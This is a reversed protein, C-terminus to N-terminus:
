NDILNEKDYSEENSDSQSFILQVILVLAFQCPDFHTKDLKELTIINLDAASKGKEKTDCIVKYLISIIKICAKSAQSNGYFLFMTIFEYSYEQDYPYFVFAVLLMRAKFFFDKPVKGKYLEKILLAESEFLDEMQKLLLGIRTYLGYFIQEDVFKLRFFSIFGIRVALILMDGLYHKCFFKKVCACLSVLNNARYRHFVDMLPDIDNQIFNVIKNDITLSYKVSFELLRFFLQVNNEFTTYVTNVTRLRKSNFDEIGGCPDILQKAKIDCYISNITFDRSSADSELTDGLLIKLSVKYKRNQKNFLSLMLLSPCPASFIEQQSPAKAYKRRLFPGKTESYVFRQVFADSLKSYDVSECMVEFDYSYTKLLKARTWSGVVYLTHFTSDSKIIDQLTSIIFLEEEDKITLYM